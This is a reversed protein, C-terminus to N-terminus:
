GGMWWGGGGADPFSLFLVGTLKEKWLLFVLNAFFFFARKYFLARKYYQFIENTFFYGNTVHFPM